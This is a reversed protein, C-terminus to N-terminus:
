IIIADIELVYGMSDSDNTFWRDIIAIEAFSGIFGVYIRGNTMASKFVNVAVFQMEKAANFALIFEEKTMESLRKM